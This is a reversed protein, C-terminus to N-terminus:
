LHHVYYLLTSTLTKKQVHDVGEVEVLLDCEHAFCLKYVFYPIRIKTPQVQILDRKYGRGLVVCGTKVEWADGIAFDVGRM